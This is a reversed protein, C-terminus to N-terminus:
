HITEGLIKDALGAYYDYGSPLARAQGLMERILKGNDRTEVQSLHEAHQRLLDAFRRLL